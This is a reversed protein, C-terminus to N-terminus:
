RDPASWGPDPVLRLRSVASEEVVLASTALLSPRGALWRGVGDARHPHGAHESQGPALSTLAEDLAAADILLQFSAVTGVEFSELPRYGGALVSGDDGGYPFPGIPRGADPRVLPRFRLPHLRGWTWKDRNSGLEVSFRLWVARLSRRVAADVREPDSWGDESRGSEAAHLVRHVLDVTRVRGLDLYRRLREEGMREAFLERVLRDLFLHFGAAGRSGSGSSRDWDRLLRVVEADERALDRGRLRRLALEVVEGARTSRLDRQVAGLDRLELPEGGTAEYLLDELRAAREGSRWLWEIVADGDNGFAADAAVEFGEGDRVRRAPLREAPLRGRWDYEPDRGPVPLLGSPQRRDPVFGALQVGAAGARDAFVVSVVPEHHRGLARRLEAANQAHAVGLFGAIGAGPESGSWQLALPPHDEARGALLPAILPGHNTEHVQMELADGGRVEIREIRELLPFWDSGDHFRPPGTQALSEVFLDTVVVPAHTAAWAVTPTFGVWFLPVGPPGAGAVDLEGGRLHAQYLAAPVTPEFHTDAALLPLGRKAHAGGLVLATSGISAGLTGLSRRLVAVQRLQVPGIRASQPGRGPDPLSELGSRAPFFLGADRGGLAQTLESLVLTEDLSAGMQWALLKLLALSDAARWPSGPGGWAAVAPPQSGSGDRWTAFVANVGEAYADLVARVRPTLRAADARALLEFGVLRSRMDGEVADPGAVEALTGLAARRLWLLQAPRDQAHVVGLGRWADLESEAEVHPVGRRDRLVRVPAEAGALVLQGGLRPHAARAAQRRELARLGLALAGIGLAILGVWIIWRGSRRRVGGTAAV